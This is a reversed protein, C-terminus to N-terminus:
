WNGLEVTSITPSLVLTNSRSGALHGIPVPAKEIEGSFQGSDEVKNVFKLDASRSQKITETKADSGESEVQGKQAAFSKQRSDNRDQANLSEELQVAKNHEKNVETIEDASEVTVQAGFRTRRRTVVQVAHKSDTAKVMNRKSRRADKVSELGEESVTVVAVGKQPVVSKRRLAYRGFDNLPEELHLVKPCEDEITEAKNATVSSANEELKSRSRTTRGVIETKCFYGRSLSTGEKKRNNRRSRRGGKVSEDGEEPLIEAVSEKRPVFSKRGLASSPKMVKQSEDEITEAKNATVSSANEELMSRSRTTRGIIETKCFYGRSLSTGEKKRNNRRSRGGGKASEDGEESLIEVVSEKRPVFSKRGLASRGSGEETRPVKEYEDQAKATEAKNATVSTNEALKARLRTIRGFSETKGFEVSSLSTSENKRDNAEQDQHPVQLNLMTKQVQMRLDGEGGEVNEEIVVERSRLRRKSSKDGGKVLQVDGEKTIVPPRSNDSVDVNEVGVSEKKEGRRGRKKGVVEDVNREVTRQERNRSKPPSGSVKGYNVMSKRKRGKCVSPEYERIEIDPMFTVNKSIKTVKMSDSEKQVEGQGQEKPNEIGKLALTLLDAMEANSKNALIGHKKCLEQLRKRKMGHFDMEAEEM